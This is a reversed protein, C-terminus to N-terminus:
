PQAVMLVMVFVLAVGLGLGVAGAQLCLRSAAVADEVGDAETGREDGRAAVVMGQLRRESPWLVLEAAM